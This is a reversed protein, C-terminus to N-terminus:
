ERAAAIIWAIGGVTAVAGGGFALGSVLTPADLYLALAAATGLATGLTCLVAAVLNM